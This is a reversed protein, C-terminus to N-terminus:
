QGLTQPAKDLRWSFYNEPNNDPVIYGTAGSKQPPKPPGGPQGQGQGQGPIPPVQGPIPPVQGPLAQGGVLFEQAETSLEELLDFMVIQNSM